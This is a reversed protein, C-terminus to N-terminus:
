FNCSPARLSFLAVELKLEAICDCVEVEDLRMGSVCRPDSLLEANDDSLADTM